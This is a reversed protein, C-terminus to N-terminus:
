KKIFPSLGMLLARGWVWGKRSRISSHSATIGLAAAVMKPGHPALGPSSAVAFCFSPFSGPDKVVERFGQALGLVM